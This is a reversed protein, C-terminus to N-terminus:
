NLGASSMQSAIKSAIDAATDTHQNDKTKTVIRWIPQETELDYYSTEVYTVERIDSYGPGQRVVYVDTFYPRGWYYGGGTGVYEGWYDSREYSDEVGGGSYFAVIVGDVGANRLAATAKETDIEGRIGGGIGPLNSSPVAPTGKKKLIEAVDIEIAQRMLADPLAVVVAVKEPKHIVAESSRWDDVVSTQACGMLLLSVTTLAPIIHSPKM